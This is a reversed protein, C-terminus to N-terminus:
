KKSEEETVPKTRDVIELLRRELEDALGRAPQWNAFKVLDSSELVEKAAERVGPELDIKRLLELTEATTLDFTPEGFRREVYNKLISSIGSYHEKPRGKALFEKKRLREIELFAREHAPLLSEPDIPAKRRKRLIIKVVLFASLIFALFGCLIDRLFGLDLSLVNKIPKIDKAEGQLVSRVRIPIAPTDISGFRGSPDRYRIRIPPIAADGTQFIAAIVEFNEQEIGKENVAPLARVSKIEFPAINAQADPAQVEYGKVGTVQILVRIEQGVTVNKPWARATVSLANEAHAASFVAASLIFTLVLRRM